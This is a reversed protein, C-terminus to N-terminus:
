SREEDLDETPECLHGVGARRRSGAAVAVVELGSAGAVGVREGAEDFRVPALQV